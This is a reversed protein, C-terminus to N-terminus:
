LYHYTRLLAGATMEFSKIERRSLQTRFKGLASSDPAFLTKAKWQLFVIPELKERRNIAPYDLMQPHYPEGLFNCVKRLTDESESVLDEFRIELRQEPALTSFAKRVADVNSKWEAAIREIDTVLRPAYLSDINARDLNRYSCAVDRGDRVIHIFQAESFLSHLTGVHQVHFNNKDGWRQFGPKRKRAYAEYVLSILASYTPPRIRLLDNYLADYDLEWTELKKSRALDVLFSRARHTMAKSANWDQYKDRWWIAFGSEPPIVITPHSTLMLRLLTTGSRPNGIVFIPRKM